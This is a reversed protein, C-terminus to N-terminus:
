TRCGSNASVYVFSDDAIGHIEQYGCRRFSAEATRAIWKVHGNGVAGAAVSIPIWSFGNIRQSDIVVGPPQANMDYVTVIIDDAEDDYIRITVPDDAIAAGVTLLMLSLGVLIKVQTMTAM